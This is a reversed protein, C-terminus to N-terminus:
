QYEWIYKYATGRKGVCCESIKNLVTKIASTQNLSQAAETISNFSNLQEGELSFQVVKRKNTNNKSMNKKHEETCVRGKMTDSIKKKDEESKQNTTKLIVKTEESHKYGLNGEGGDNLNYGNNFSDFKHILYKEMIDLIVKLKTKDNSNVKFLVEYQFNEYGYKRIAKGFKTQTKSTGSKHAYKRQSENITQGIYHKGSPSTYKYIVGVRKNEKKM